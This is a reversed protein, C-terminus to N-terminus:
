LGAVSLTVHWARRPCAHGLGKGRTKMTNALLIGGAVLAETSGVPRILGPIFECKDLLHPLTGLPSARGGRKTQRSSGYGVVM